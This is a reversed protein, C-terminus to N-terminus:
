PVQRMFKGFEDQSLRGLDTSDSWRVVQNPQKLCPSQIVYPDLAAYHELYVPELRTDYDHIHAHGERLVWGTPDIALYVGTSFSLIERLGEFLEGLHRGQPDAIQYILDMLSRLVRDSATRGM